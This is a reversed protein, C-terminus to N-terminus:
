LGGTMRDTVRRFLVLGARGVPLPPPVARAKFRCLYASFSSVAYRHRQAVQICLVYLVIM